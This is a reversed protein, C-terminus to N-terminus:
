LIWIDTPINEYLQDITTKTTAEPKCIEVRVSIVHGARRGEYRGQSDCCYAVMKLLVVVRVETIKPPFPFLTHAQPPSLVNALM